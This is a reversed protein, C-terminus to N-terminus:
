LGQPHASLWGSHRERMRDREGRDLFLADAGGDYPHHVYRMPLDTIMVGGTQYDAVARLLSDLCGVQWQVQSIYLHTFTEEGPVSDDTCVSTWHQADPHWSEHDAPRPGPTPRDDWDPTVVYVDQGAFLEDLVTNYRGLIIAYEAETGAYRKSEPLSHFRVWRQPYAHRLEHAIPPCAPWSAAWRDLLGEDNV